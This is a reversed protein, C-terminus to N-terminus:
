EDQIFTFQQIYGHQSIRKDPNKNRSYHIHGFHINTTTSLLSLDARRDHLVRQKENARDDYSNDSKRETDKVEDGARIMRECEAAYGSVPVNRVSHRKEAQKYQQDNDRQDITRFRRHGSLVFSALCVDGPRPGAKARPINAKNSGWCMEWLIRTGECFNM